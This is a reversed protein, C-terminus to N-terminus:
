SPSTHVKCVSNEDKRGASEGRFWAWFSRVEVPRLPVLASILSRRWLGTGCAAQSNPSIDVTGHPAAPSQSEFTFELNARIGARWHGM